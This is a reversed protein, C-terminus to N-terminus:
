ARANAASWSACESIGKKGNLWVMLGSDTVRVAYFRHNSVWRGLNEARHKGSPMFVEIQHREDLRKKPIHKFQSM